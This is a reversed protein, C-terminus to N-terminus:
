LNTFSKRQFFSVISKQSNNNALQKSASTKTKKPSQVTSAVHHQRETPQNEIQQQTESPSSTSNLPERDEEVVETVWNGESDTTTKVSKKKPAQFRTSHHSFAGVVGNNEKEVNNTNDLRSHKESLLSTPEEQEGQFSEQSDNVSRVIRKRRRKIPSIFTSEGENDEQKKLDSEGWSEQKDSPLTTQDVQMDEINQEVKMDVVNGDNPTDSELPQWCTHKVQTCVVSSFRNDRLENKEEPPALTMLRDNELDESCILSPEYVKYRSISYISKSVIVNNVDLCQLSSSQHNTLVWKRNGQEDRVSYVFTPYFTDAHQAWYCELVQKAQQVSVNAKYSLQKYTLVKNSGQLVADIVCKTDDM